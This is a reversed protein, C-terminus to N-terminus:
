MQRKVIVPEGAQEMSRNRMKTRYRLLWDAGQRIAGYSKKLEPDLTEGFKMEAWDALEVLEIDSYEKM